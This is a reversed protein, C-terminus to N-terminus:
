NNKGVYHDVIAQAGKGIQNVYIFEENIRPAEIVCAQKIAEIM